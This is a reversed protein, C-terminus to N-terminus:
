ELKTGCNCCYNWSKEISTSCSPCPTCDTGDPVNAGSLIRDKQRAFVRDMIENMRKRRELFQLGKETTHYLRTNKDYAVYREKIVKPIYTRVQRSTLAAQHKLRTKNIGNKGVELIGAEIEIM